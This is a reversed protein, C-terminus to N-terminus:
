RLVKRRVRVGDLQTYTLLLAGASSYTDFLGAIVDEEGPWPFAYVVDFDRIVLGLEPYADDVDTVLWVTDETRTHEMQVEAGAPVFSGRVFEVPLDYDEALLRAADVLSGEIEIGYSQFDMMAALMATIGFGSGWECFLDGPALDADVVAQLAHYVAVFDSPVFGSIRVKRSSIYEHIRADAENLFETIENPLRRSSINLQLERLAM